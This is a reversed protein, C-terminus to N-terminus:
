RGRARPRCPSRRRRIRRLPLRRHPLLDRRQRRRRGGAPPRQRAVGRAGDGDRARLRRGLVSPRPRDPLAVVFYCASAHGLAPLQPQRRATARGPSTSSSRTAPSRSRPASRSTGRARRSSTRPRRLARRPAPRASRPRGAGLLRLARGDGRRRADRGHRECLETSRAARRPPARRAPRPLRRPAGGPQADARRPRALVDDDLRTPPIVVGEDALTRSDAPMSGPESGGVDAHHARTVAFGVDTRSVLTIDPLHTGGAYPDNLVFVDDPQRTTRGHRRRRRRADRRPPRPHARGPRDHPGRGDFLAASCDRREKINASFASRVLM